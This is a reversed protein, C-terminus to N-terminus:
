SVQYDWLKEMVPAVSEGTIDSPAISIDTFLEWELDQAAQALEEFESDSRSFAESETAIRRRKYRDRGEVLRERMPLVGHPGVRMDAYQCVKLETSGELVTKLKGFGSSNMIEIVEQSLGIERAIAANAAHQEPGYKEVFDRKVSEWYEKGEPQVFDPFYELDSKVINGMDHFLCETIVIKEDVEEKLHDCVYQAVAAVRLQHLQLSPMIRFQAYIERPTKM